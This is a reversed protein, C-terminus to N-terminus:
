KVHVEICLAGSEYLVKIVGMGGPKLFGRGELLSIVFSCQIPDVCVCRIIIKTQHTEVSTALVDMDVMDSQLQSAEVLLDKISQEM